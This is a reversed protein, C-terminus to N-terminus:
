GVFPSAISFAVFSLAALAFAGVTTSAVVAAVFARPSTLYTDPNTV